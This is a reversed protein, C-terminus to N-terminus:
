SAVGSIVGAVLSRFRLFSSLSVKDVQMQDTRVLRGRYNQPYSFFKPQDHLVSSTVSRVPSILSCEEASSFASLLGFERSVITLRSLNSSAEVTTLTAYRLAHMGEAKLRVISKRRIRM